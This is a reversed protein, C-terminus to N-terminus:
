SGRLRPRRGARTWCSNGSTTGRTSLGGVAQRKDLESTRELSAGLGRVSRGIGWLIVRGSAQRNRSLPRIVAVNAETRASPLGWATGVHYATSPSSITNVVPSVVTFAALM